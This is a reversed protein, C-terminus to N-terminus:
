KPRVRVLLTVVLRGRIGVNKSLAGSLRAAIIKERKNTMLTKM